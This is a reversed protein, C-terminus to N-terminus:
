NREDNKKKAGRTSRAANRTKKVWKESMREFAVASAGLCVGLFECEIKVV